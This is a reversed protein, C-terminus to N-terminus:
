RQTKVEWAHDMGNSDYATVLSVLPHLLNGSNPKRLCPNDGLGHLLYLWTLLGYVNAHLLGDWLM